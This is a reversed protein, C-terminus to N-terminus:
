RVSKGWETHERLLVPEDDLSQQVYVKTADVDVTYIKYETGGDENLLPLKEIHPLLKERNAVGPISKIRRRIQSIDAYIQEYFDVPEEKDVYYSYLNHTFYQLLRQRLDEKPNIPLGNNLGCVSQQVILFYLSFWKPQLVLEEQAASFIIKHERMVFTINSDVNGRYYALLDFLSKYFGYYLFQQNEKEVRVHPIYSVKDAYRNVIERVTQMINQVVNVRLFLSHTRREYGEEETATIVSSGIKILLSPEGNLVDLGLSNYLLEHCFRCTTMQCLEDYIMEHAQEELEPVLYRIVQLVYDQVVNSRMSSFDQAIHPIHIFDFGLLKFENVINRFDREIEENLEADPLSDSEIYIVKGDDIAAGQIECSMVEAGLALAYEAGLLLLAESPVCLGDALSMEKLRHLLELREAESLNQQLHSLAQAFTIRQAEIQIDRTFHYTKDTILRCFLSMEREDIVSDAKIIDSVVRAVAIRCKRDM